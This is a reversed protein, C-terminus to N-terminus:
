ASEVKLLQSESGLDDDAGDLVPNSALAISSSTQWDLVGELDLDPAPATPQLFGKRGNGEPCSKADKSSLNSSTVGAFAAAWGQWAEMWM